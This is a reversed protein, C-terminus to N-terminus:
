CVHILRNIIILSNEYVCDARTLDIVIHAQTKAIASTLDDSRGLSAVLQFNPDEQITKCAQIGMKGHAGNVIVRSSM